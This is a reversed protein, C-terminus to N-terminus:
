ESRSLSVSSLLLPGPNAHPSPVARRPVARSRNVPLKGLSEPAGIAARPFQPQKRPTYDVTLLHM